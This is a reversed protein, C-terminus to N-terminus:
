VFCFFLNGVITEQLSWDHLHHKNNLLILIYQILNGIDMKLGDILKQYIIIFPKSLRIEFYSFM